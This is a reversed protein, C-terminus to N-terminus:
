GPSRAARYPQRWQGTGAGGPWFRPRHGIGRCARRPLGDLTPAAAASSRWCARPCGPIRWPMPRFMSTWRVTPQLLRLVETIFFPNGETERFIADVLEPPADRGAVTRVFQEVPARGLGQLPIRQFAPDGILQSIISALPHDPPIDTPRYTALILLRSDRMEQALFLLLMVSPADARHLDDVVIMLPKEGAINRLLSAVADFM